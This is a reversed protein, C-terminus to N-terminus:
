LELKLSASFHAPFIDTIGLMTLLICCCVCYRALSCSTVMGSGSFPLHAQFDQTTLSFNLDNIPCDCRQFCRFICVKVWVAECSIWWLCVLDHILTLTNTDISCSNRYNRGKQGSHRCGHYQCLSSTCWNPPTISWIPSTISWNASPTSWSPPVATAFFLLCFPVPLQPTLQQELELHIISESFCRKLFIVCMRETEGPTHISSAVSFAGKFLFLISQNFRCMHSGMSLVYQLVYSIFHMQLLFMFICNLHYWWLAIFLVVFIM